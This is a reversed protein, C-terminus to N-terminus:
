NMIKITNIEYNVFFSGAYVFHIFMFNDDNNM